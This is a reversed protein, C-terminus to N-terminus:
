AAALKAAASAAAAAEMMAEITPRLWPVATATTGVAFGAYGAGAIATCMDRYVNLGAPYPMFVRPKGPVNAGMYWSNAQPLLTIAAFENVHAVWEEQAQPVPEITVQQRGAMEALCDAIFEVHQEISMIMNTLVSPSGPGTITFLNPFGAVMLGLFTKPGEAWQDKLRVGGRGRIDIRDLAGTMADFGTALVVADFDFDGGSTRIGSATFREIPTARLDILAVNDRNFTAYYGTDVCPRKTAFPHDRPTLLAAVKPDEVISRIKGAVFDAVYGNAVPDIGTDAYASLLAFGGIQWRREFEARRVADPTEMALNENAENLFGGITNRGEARYHARNATWDAVLEDGLPGNHAPMSYNPTRQFVTLTDAQEAIIPISQIASSGTGIIGVRQGTFNVGEHPWRSTRYLRGAYDDIGAFEVETPISLCGTAMMVFRGTVQAGADTTVTWRNTREDFHAASVRTDFVIDRKLDFRKAVHEAYSLLEAQPAYRETWHWENELDEDFSFSYELSRIDVRAGPYRNWYWTGGVTAGAEFIIASMGMARLKHLMYMGAFGAGVIVADFDGEIPKAAYAM